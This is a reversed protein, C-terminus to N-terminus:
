PLVEFERVEVRAETGKVPAGNDWVLGFVVRQPFPVPKEGMDVQIDARNRANIAGRM